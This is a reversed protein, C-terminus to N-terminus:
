LVSKIKVIDTEIGDLVSNIQEPSRAIQWGEAEAYNKQKGHLKGVARGKKDQTKLEMKVAYLRGNGLPILILNDPLKGAVQSFFMRKAWEPATRKMWGMLASHFRVYTWHRLEIAENAYQQLDSEPCVAKGTPSPEPQSWKRKPFMMMATDVSMENKATM